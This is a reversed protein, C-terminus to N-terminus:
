QLGDVDWGELQVGLTDGIAVLRGHGVRRGNARIGVRAHEINDTLAFVYGLALQSLQALPVSVEGLTFDIRLPLQALPDDTTPSAADTGTPSGNQEPQNMPDSWLDDMTAVAVADIRLDGNTWCAKWDPASADGSVLRLHTFVQQREGLVLVDGPELARLQDVRLRPGCTCIRLTTPLADLAPQARADVPAVETAMLLRRLTAPEAHLIGEDLVDDGEGMRFGITMLTADRTADCGSMAQPLIVADLARALRALTARHALAWATLRAADAYDSWDLEGIPESRSAQLSLQLPRGNASLVAQEGASARPAMHAELWFSATDQAFLWRRPREFLEGLLTAADGSLSPLRMRLDSSDCASTQTAAYATM